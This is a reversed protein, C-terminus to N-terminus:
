PYHVYKETKISERLKKILIYNCGRWKRGRDWGTNVRSVKLSM